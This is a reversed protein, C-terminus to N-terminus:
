KQIFGILEWEQQSGSWAERFAHMNVLMVHVWGDNYLLVLVSRTIFVGVNM